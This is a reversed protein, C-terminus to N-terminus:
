RGTSSLRHAVGLSAVANRDIEVQPRDETKKSRKPNPANLRDMFEQPLYMELEPMEKIARNLSNHSRLFQMLQDRVTRYRQEINQKEQRAALTRDHWDRVRSPAGSLRFTVDHRYRSDVRPMKVSGDFDRDYFVGTETGADDVFRVRLWHLENLWSEPLQGRLHPAESYADQVALEAMEDAMEEPSATDLQGLASRQMRQVVGAVENILRETIKVHAM